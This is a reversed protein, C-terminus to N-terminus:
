RNAYFQLDPSSKTYVSIRQLLVLLWMNHLTVIRQLSCDTHVVRTVRGRIFYNRSLSNSQQSQQFKLENFKIVEVGIFVNLRRYIRQEYLQLCDTRFRM